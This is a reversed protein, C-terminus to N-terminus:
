TAADFGATRIVACEPAFTGKVNTLGSTTDIPNDLHRLVNGDLADPNLAELNEAMTKGTVTMVDGHM